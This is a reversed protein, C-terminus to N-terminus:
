KYEWWGARWKTHIMSSPYSSITIAEIRNYIVGSLIFAREESVSVPWARDRTRSSGETGGGRHTRPHTHTTSLPVPPGLRHEKAGRAKAPPQSTAGEGRALVSAFGPWSPPVAAHGRALRRRRAANGHRFGRAGDHAFPVLTHSHSHSHTCQMYLALDILTTDTLDGTWKPIIVANDPQM